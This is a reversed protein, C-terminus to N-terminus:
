IEEELISLISSATKGWSFEKSRTIGNKSLQERLTDDTVVRIIADTLEDVSNPDITLSAEGAVESCASTNSTIVAIGCAFAEIIPIGFGEYFSPLIFLAAQKYLHALNEDSEYGTFVVSRLIEKDLGADSLLEELSYESAMSGILVLIHPLGTKRKFNYFAKLICASNKIKSITGVSLIYPITIDYQNLIRQISSPNRETNFVEKDVGPYVVETKSVADYDGYFKILDKKTNNSVCTIRQATELVRKIQSDRYDIHPEDYFRPYSKFRLDHINVVIPIDKTDLFDASPSFFIDIDPMTNMIGKNFRDNCLMFNRAKIHPIKKYRSFINKKCYLHYQNRKDIRTLGKVLGLTYQGIGTPKKLTSRLDIGINM